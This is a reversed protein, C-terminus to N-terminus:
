QSKKEGGSKEAAGKQDKGAAPGGITEVKYEHPRKRLVKASIIKDPKDGTPEEQGQASQTRNRQIKALVDLGEIVRGFVAHKGDLHGAPLFMLFFQSGGSNPRGTNAMSLSGRFHNRHEPLKQEDPITYDPGGTGDNKPDGGQAMFHPVVRHFETGDFFGKETLTLFNAVTNPAENEFLEVVLDGKNTKLLVRPLDDAQAEAERLKEEQTWLDRFEDLHQLFQKQMVDLVAHKDGEKLWKEAEDFHNTCFAAMGGYNYIRPNEYGHEILVRAIPLASEYNDREVEYKLQEALFKGAETKKESGTAVAAEAAAILSPELEEAQKVLAQYEDEIPKRENPRTTAWKLRLDRLKALMEKWQAFAEDFDTAAQAPDRLTAAPDATAAKSKPKGSEQALSGSVLLSLVAVALAGRIM